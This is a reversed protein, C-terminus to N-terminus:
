SAESAPQWAALMLLRSTADPMTPLAQFGIFLLPM